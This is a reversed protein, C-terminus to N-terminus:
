TCANYIPFRAHSPNTHYMCLLGYFATKNFIIPATLSRKAEMNLTAHEVEQVLPKMSSKEYNPAKKKILNSKAKYTFVCQFVRYILLYTEDRFILAM